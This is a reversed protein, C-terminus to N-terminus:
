INKEAMTSLRNGQRGIWFPPYSFLPLTAACIDFSSFCVLFHFKTPKITHYQPTCGLMSKLPRDQILDWAWKEYRLGFVCKKACLLPIFIAIVKKKYYRRWINQKTASNIMLHAIGSFKFYFPYVTRLIDAGGCRFNTFFEINSFFANLTWTNM